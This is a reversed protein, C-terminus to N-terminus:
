GPLIRTAYQGVRGRLVAAIRECFAATGIITVADRWRSQADRETLWHQLLDGLDGEHCGPMGWPHAIRSPIDAEELAALGAITGPTVGPLMFRSPRLRVPAEGTLEVLAMTLPLAGTTTLRAAFLVSPLGVSDALLVLRRGEPIAGVADGHPGQLTCPSGYALPASIEKLVDPPLRFALWGEAPSADLVPLALTRGSLGLHFWQGPWVQGAGEFAVQLLRGGDAMASNGTIRSM